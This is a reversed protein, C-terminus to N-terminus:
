KKGRRNGIEVTQQASYYFKVLGNCLHTFIIRFIAIKQM